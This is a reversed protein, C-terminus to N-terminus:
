ETAAFARKFIAAARDAPMVDDDIHSLAHHSAQKATQKATQQGSSAHKRQLHVAHLATM